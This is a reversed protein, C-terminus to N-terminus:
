KGKLSEKAAAVTKPANGIFINKGNIIVPRKLFTYEELLYKRYDKEKLELEHLGMKRFKLAVRSFLAEYSGALEKLDFKELLSAFKERTFPKSIFDMVF